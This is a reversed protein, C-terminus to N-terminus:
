AMNQSRWQFVCGIARILFHATENDFEDLWLLRIRMCLGFPWTARWISESLLLSKAWPQEWSNVGYAENKQQLYAWATRYINATLHWKAPTLQKRGSEPREDKVFLAHLDSLFFAYISFVCSFVSFHVNQIINWFIKKLIAKNNSNYRYSQWDYFVPSVALSRLRVSQFKLVTPQADEQIDM